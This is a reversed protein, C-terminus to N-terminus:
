LLALASRALINAQTLAALGSQNLIQLRSYASVEEAIDADRISAESGQDNEIMVETARISTGLRNQYAGLDGRARSVRVLALGVASIAGQASSQTSISQSGLGLYAGTAQMDQLNLELRHGASNDPGVQFTGSTGSDITLTEDELSGERYGDLAPHSGEAAKQGSLTLQIGLRDFSAVIASGTAVVGGAADDADLSASIDITQSTVGNGLSVEGDGVPDSFVYAGSAAGSIQIGVVGTSTSVIASSAVTDEDVTNGFGSLLTASNYQTVQAVRDIENALQVFEANLSERNRDNVTGSAAQVSLEQMRILMASVESLAGEATQILNVAQESNRLGQHMGSLEARLKESVSLGAADDAARNVRLGSSLREIRTKLDRGTINLIRRANFASVNTNIRLPMSFFRWFSAGKTSPTGELM